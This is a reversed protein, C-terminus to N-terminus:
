VVGMQKLRVIEDKTYGLKGCLVNHNHQGLMPAPSRVRWPTEEMRFPAGPYRLTGTREHDVDVFFGRENLHESQFLGKTTLAMGVILGWQTLKHFLSLQDQIMLQPKFLERIEDAHHYRRYADSFRPDEAIELDLGLAAILDTWDPEQTAFLYLHGDKCEYFEAPGGRPSTGRKGVDTAAASQLIYPQLVACVSEQISIDIYQGQGTVERAIIACMSALFSLIGAQYQSQSPPGKLPERDGTGNLYSFGALGYHILDSAKYDRYPGTQGFNSISTMILRPNISSLTNWGLGFNEMVGPRFNEVLIDASKVLQKLIQRGRESKLNLTVGQKNTNLALFLGSAEPDPIDNPFPGLRRAGDGGEPSEVKIVVAGFDAFLKTSFPGAVYHTLDLVEIDSLATEHTAMSTLENGSSQTEENM